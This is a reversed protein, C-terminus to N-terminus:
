PVWVTAPAVIGTLGFLPSRVPTPVPRPMPSMWDIAPRSMAPVLLAAIAATLMMPAVVDSSWLMLRSVPTAVFTFVIPPPSRTRSSVIVAIGVAVTKPTVVPLMSTLKTGAVGPVNAVLTGIVPRCPPSFTMPASKRGAFPLSYAAVVPPRTYMRFGVVPATDDGTVRDASAASM